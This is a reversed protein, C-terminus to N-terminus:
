PCDACSRVHGAVAGATQRLRPLRRNEGTPRGSILLVAVVILLGGLAEGAGIEGPRAHLIRSGGTTWSVVVFPSAAAAGIFQWATVGLGDDPSAASRRSWVVYAASSPVGAIVLLVLVRRASLQEM